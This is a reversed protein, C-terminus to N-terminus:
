HEDARYCVGNCTRRIKRSSRSAEFKFRPAFCSARQVSICPDCLHVLTASPASASSIMLTVAVLAPSTLAAGASADPRCSCTHIEISRLGRAETGLRLHMQPATSPSPCARIVCGVSVRVGHAIWWAGHVMMCWAAHVM